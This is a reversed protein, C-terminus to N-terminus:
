RTISYQELASVENYYDEDDPLLVVYELVSNYTVGYTKLVDAASSKGDGMLWLLFHGSNIMKSPSDFQVSRGVVEAIDVEGDAGKQPNQSQKKVLNAIKERVVSLNNQSLLKKLIHSAHSGNQDIIELMIIDAKRHLSVSNGGVQSVNVLLNKFNETKNMMM